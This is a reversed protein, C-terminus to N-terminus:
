PLQRICKKIAQMKKRRAEATICILTTQTFGVPWDYIKLPKRIEEGRAFATTPIYFAAKNNVQGSTSGQSAQFIYNM